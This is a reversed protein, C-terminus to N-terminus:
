SLSENGVTSSTPHFVPCPQVPAFFREGVPIQYGVSWSKLIRWGLGCFFLIYVKIKWEVCLKAVKFYICPCHFIERLALFAYLFILTYLWIEPFIHHLHIVSPLPGPDRESDSRSTLTKQFKSNKQQFSASPKAARTCFVISSSIECLPSFM